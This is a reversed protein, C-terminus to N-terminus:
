KSSPDSQYMEDRLYGGVDQVYHQVEHMLAEKFPTVYPDSGAVSARVITISKDGADYQGFGADGTPMKDLMYVTVDEAASPVERYLVDHGLVERLKAEGTRLLKDRGAPNITAEADSLVYKGRGDASDYVWGNELATQYGTSESNYIMALPEGGVPGVMDTQVLERALGRTASAIDGFDVDVAGVGAKRMLERAGSRMDNAVGRLRGLPAARDKALESALYAVVEENEYRSPNAEGNETRARTDAEAASVAAA